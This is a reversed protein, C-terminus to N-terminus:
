IADDSRYKIFWDIDSKLKSIMGPYASSTLDFKDYNDLEIESAHTDTDKTGLKLVRIIKGGINRLAEVENLFRCDSVVINSNLGIQNIKRIGLKVWFDDCVERRFCETGVIQLAKRPSMKWEQDIIEKEKDDYIQNHTFGFLQKGVIEKLPEAWSVETFKYQEVLYKAITSKGHQKKGSLGIIM